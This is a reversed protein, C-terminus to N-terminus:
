IAHRDGKRMIPRQLSLVVVQWGSRQLGNHSWCARPPWAVVKSTCLHSPALGACRLLLGTLAPTGGELVAIERLHITPHLPRPQHRTESTGLGRTAIPRRAYRLDLARGTIPGCQDVYTCKTASQAVLNASMWDRYKVMALGSLGVSNRKIVRTRHAVNSLEYGCSSLCSKLVERTYLTTIHGHKLATM